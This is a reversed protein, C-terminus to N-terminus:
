GAGIKLEDLLALVQPLRVPKVLHQDFGAERALLRDKEQGWGTVAVLFIAHTAVTGKLERALAYGNLGPLGIDLLAADPMFRTALDLGTHGDYAVQVEHGYERLLAAMGDIFDRNDDVLLVRRPQASTSRAEIAPAVVPQALTVPLEVIFTSGSGEGDSEVSIKGEHLEILHRALTLGVGLGAHSRELSQDAQSFMAFVQQQMAASIGIGNDQLRIQVLSQRVVVQLLLKGGDNTYKAANTLLNAFVQALRTSDGEVLIPQSPLELDLAHGRYDILRTVTDIAHQLVDQLIVTERRIVLKGTTIRSVDLLDDVLRVMQDLQREMIARAQLAMTPTCEPLRQIELGNVLPALPNRLEHALTALFEDKRRDALLLAEEAQRRVRMEVELARNTAELERTRQDVEHLMGNFADVLVGIEDSSTKQARLSFDRGQIVQRAVKTVALVPRTISAQLWGAILAALLFSSGMVGALILFTGQLREALMHRAHLYVIGTLVGNEMVPHFLSIRGNEIQYGNEGAYQPINQIHERAAYVAFQQRDPTYLAAALIQPRKGLIVLSERATKFDNFALAPGSVRAFIDAQTTLDAVALRQYTRADHALLAVTALLLAVFTTVLVVAMLKRSISRQIAPIM